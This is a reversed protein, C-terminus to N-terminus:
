SGSDDLMEDRNGDQCDRRRATDRGEFVGDDKVACNALAVVSPGIFGRNTQSAAANRANAPVDRAAWSRISVPVTVSEAVPSGMAPADIPIWPVRIAVCVLALPTNLRAANGSEARVTITRNM